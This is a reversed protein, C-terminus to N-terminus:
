AGQFRTRWAMSTLPVLGRRRKGENADVRRALPATIAQYQEALQATKGTTGRIKESLVAGLKLALAEVFLPDFAEEPVKKIYLLNVSSQNTLVRRGEVCFAENSEEDSENIQLV